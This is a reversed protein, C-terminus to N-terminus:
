AAQRNYRDVVAAPAEDVPSFGDLVFGDTQWYVEQGVFGADNVTHGDGICNGFAADLARVTAANECPVHEISKTESDEIVLFGLGSGWSGHFGRLIGKRLQTM